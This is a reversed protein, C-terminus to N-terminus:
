AKTISILHLNISDLSHHITQTSVDCIWMGLYKFPIKRTFYLLRTKKDVLFLIHFIGGVQMLTGSSQISHLSLEVQPSLLLGHTPFIPPVLTTRQLSFYM